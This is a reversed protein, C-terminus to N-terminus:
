NLAQWQYKSLLFRGTKGSQRPIYRPRFIAGVLKWILLYLLDFPHYSPKPKRKRKYNMRKLFATTTETRPHRYTVTM